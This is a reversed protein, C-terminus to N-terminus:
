AVRLVRVGESDTKLVRFWSRGSFHELEDEVGGDQLADRVWVGEGECGLLCLVSVGGLKLEM